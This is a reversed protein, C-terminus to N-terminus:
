KSTSREANIARANARLFARKEKGEPMAEYRAVLSANDAPTGADRATIRTAAPPARFLGFAAETADPAADYAARFAAEDSIRDKHAALFSDCRAKRCAATAKKMEADATAARDILSQAAAVAEDETATDPLGLLALLKKMTPDGPNHADGGPQSDAARAAALTSLTDFQPTNTLAISTVRTPRFRGNGLDELDMVPSRSVLVKSAYAERGPPTFEFRAWLSGDRAEMDLAWAMADSPKDLDLSFHERDVLIGHFGPSSAAARFASLCNAIAEADIVVTASIAKGKRRIRMGPYEGVPPLIQFWAPDAGDDARCCVFFRDAIRAPDNM